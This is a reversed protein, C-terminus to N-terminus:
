RRLAKRAYAGIKRVADRGPGEYEAAKAIEHLCTLYRVREADTERHAKSYHDVQAEAERIIRGHDDCDLARRSAERVQRDADVRVAAVQERLRLIERALDVVEAVPAGSAILARAARRADHPLAGLTISPGDYREHRPDLHERADHPADACTTRECNM